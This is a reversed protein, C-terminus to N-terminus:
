NELIATQWYFFDGPQGDSGTMIFDAVYDQVLWTNEAAFLPCVAADDDVLIEDADQWAALEEDPDTAALATNVAADFEPNNYGGVSFGSEGLWMMMWNEPHHYDEGYGVFAIDFDNAGFAEGFAPPDMPEVTVDVGLNEKWQGQLFEARTSNPDLNAFRISVDGYAPRNAGPDSVLDVAADPNYALGAGRDAHYYPTLSSPLWSTTPVGQGQQVESVLTDRDASTCFAKRAEVDDFPPKTQNFALAFTTTLPVRRLQNEYGPDNAIRDLEALPVPVADLDGSMYASFATTENEIINFVVEYLRPQMEENWFDEVAGLTISSGHDWAELRFPGASVLNGPETWETNTIDGYKEIVDQRLASAPWMAMLLNFTNSPRTITIELTHDDVARVGLSGALEEITAEDADVAFALEAGGAIVGAYSSAGYYSALRPDLLRQLSYVFNHATVPEGDEWVADERINFTYTTGDESIGGNDLTPVETAAYPLVENTTPDLRLLTVFLNRAMAVSTEFDALSPDIYDPEGGLWVRLTQDDSLEGSYEGGGGGKCAALGSVALAALLVTMTFLWRTPLMRM